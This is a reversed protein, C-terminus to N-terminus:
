DLLGFSVIHSAGSATFVLFVEDDRADEVGGDFQYPLGPRVGLVDHAPPPRFEIGRGGAFNVQAHAAM